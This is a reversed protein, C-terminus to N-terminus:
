CNKGYYLGSILLHTIHGKEKNWYIGLKEKSKLEVLKIIKM